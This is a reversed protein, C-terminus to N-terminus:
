FQHDLLEPKSFKLCNANIGKFDERNKEKEEEKKKKVLFRQHRGIGGVAGNRGIQCECGEEREWNGIMGRALVCEIGWIRVRNESPLTRESDSGRIKAIM